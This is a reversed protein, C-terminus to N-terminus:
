SRIIGGLWRTSTSSRATQTKSSTSWGTGSRVPCMSPAALPGPVRGGVPGAAVIAADLM